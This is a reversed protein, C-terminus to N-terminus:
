ANNAKNYRSLEAAGPVILWRKPRHDHPYKFDEMECEDFAYGAADFFPNEVVCVLDAEFKTPPAIEKVGEVLSLIADAKKKYPLPTKGVRDIYYGM